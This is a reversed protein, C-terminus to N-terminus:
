LNSEILKQYMPIVVKSDFKDRISQIVIEPKLKCEDDLAEILRKKLEGKKYPNFLYGNNSHEIMEKNGGFESAIVTAGLALSELTVYSFNEWLSPQVIVKANKILTLKELYTAHEIFILNSKFLLNEDIIMKKFTYPRRYISNRGCFVFKITPFDKMIDKVVKSLELVGKRLELRGIYLIYDGYVQPELPNKVYDHNIKDVDIPNPIVNSLIGWDRQIIEGLDKSPSTTFCSQMSQKKEMLKIEEQCSYLKKGLMIREILYLPTHFRTSFPISVNSVIDLGQGMWEPSEIFDVKYQRILENIKALFVKTTEFPSLGSSGAIHLNINESFIKTKQGKNAELTIIHVINNANALGEAMERTYTGIGGNNQADYPNESSLLIINM